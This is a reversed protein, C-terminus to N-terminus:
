GIAGVGVGQDDIGFGIGFGFLAADRGENNFLAIFTKRNGLFQVFQAHAAAMGAFQNKLVAFYGFFVDQALEIAADFDEHAPQVVFAGHQGAPRQADHLCDHVDDHGINVIALLEPLGYAFELEYLALHGVQVGGQLGTASE